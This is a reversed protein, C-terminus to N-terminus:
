EHVFGRLVGGPTESHKSLSFNASTTRQAAAVGTGLLLLLSSIWSSDNPANGESGDAKHKQRFASSPVDRDTLLMAVM